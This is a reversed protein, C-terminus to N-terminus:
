GSNFSVVGVLDRPFLTAIAMVAAEAAVQQQTMPTNAVPAAMSGSRDIVIVLAGTSLVLQAPLQCDVPFIQSLPSNTWGGAGFSDPGGMVVLGGGTDAV